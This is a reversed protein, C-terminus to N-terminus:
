PGKLFGLMNSIKTKEMKKCIPKILSKDIKSTKVSFYSKKLMDKNEIKNVAAILNQM